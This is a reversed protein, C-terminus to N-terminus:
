ASRWKRKGMIRSRWKKLCFSVLHEKQIISLWVATSICLLFGAAAFVAVIYLFKKMHKM